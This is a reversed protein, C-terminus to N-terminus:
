GDDDTVVVDITPPGNLTVDSDVPVLTFQLVESQELAIDDDEFIVTVIAEQSPVQPMPQFTVTGVVIGLSLIFFM